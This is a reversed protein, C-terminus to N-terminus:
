DHPHAASRIRHEYLLRGAGHNAADVELSLQTAGQSLAWEEIADLLLRGVGSRRAEEVGVIDPIRAEPGTAPAIGGDEATPVMHAVAMGVVHEDSEAIVVHIAEAAAMLQDRLASSDPLRFRDPALSMHFRASEEYLVIMPEIDGPIRGVRLSYGSM